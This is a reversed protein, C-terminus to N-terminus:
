VRWCVALVGGVCTGLGEGLSRRTGDQPARLGEGAVLADDVVVAAARDGVVVRLEDDVRAHRVERVAWEARGAEPAPRPPRVPLEDAADRVARRAHSRAARM